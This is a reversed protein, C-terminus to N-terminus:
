YNGDKRIGAILDRIFNIYISSSALSMVFWMFWMQSTLTIAGCYQPNFIEIM